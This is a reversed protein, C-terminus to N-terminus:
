KKGVLIYNVGTDGSLKWSQNIPNFSMGQLIELKVNNRHFHQEIESPRLFKNWDHTGVPLWRMIYEAGIIAMAYSRLTRNLTAIFLLGGPKVLASIADMFSGVDAVHEIIEMALVVDYTKGESALQEASTHQYNVNIGEQKAHLSAIQINKESADIGTVNAGMQAMPESLLGGGCGVDVLNIGEPSDKDFHNSTIERIFSIRVPNFLHLPKFKGHPDWWEDAMATFKEIEREDISASTLLHPTQACM